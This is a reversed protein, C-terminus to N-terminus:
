EEIVDLKIDGWTELQIRCSRIVNDRVFSTLGTITVLLSGDPQEDYQPMEYVGNAGLMLPLATEISLTDLTRGPRFSKPDTNGASKFHLKM